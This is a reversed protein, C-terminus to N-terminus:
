AVLQVIKVILGSSDADDKIIKWASGADRSQTLSLGLDAQDDYITISSAAHYEDMQRLQSELRAAIGRLIAALRLM